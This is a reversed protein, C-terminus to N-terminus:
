SKGTSGVGLHVVDAAEPGDLAVLTPRMQQSGGVPVPCTKTSFAAHPDTLAVGM